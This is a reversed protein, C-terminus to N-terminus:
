IFKHIINVMKEEFASRVNITLMQFKLSKDLPLDDDSNFKIKMIDDAYEGPINDIKEILNKIGNWCEAYRKLVEKNNDTLAFNLYKDGEKGEIFGDAEGVIFFLLNVSHINVYKSNEM